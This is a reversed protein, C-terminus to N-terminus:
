MIIITTAVMSGEKGIEIVVKQGEAAEARVMVRVKIREALSIDRSMNINMGM